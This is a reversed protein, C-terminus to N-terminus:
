TSRSTDDKMKDKDDPVIETDYYCTLFIKAAEGVLTKDPISAATGYVKGVGSPPQPNLRVFEMTEKVDKVLEEAFNDTAQLSTLCVHLGPPYQLFTLHWGRATMLDGVALINVESSRFAVISTLPDGFLQIGPVRQLRQKLDRATRIIRRAADTYGTVGHYLLAAWCVAMLGGPRSGAITPSGYIGGPWDPTVFYQYHRYEPRRYMIVSSGKHAQGYKHTDASISVVGPVRFDFPPLPYGAADMFPLLFGGMCCDVHVPVGRALGLAGIAEVDDIIGHPFEPASAVLMVTNRNIARRMANVDAKFSVPDVPVKRIKVGLLSAAKDFGSHATVAMVVEAQKVGKVERGWNRMAKMAMLISESGGSTMCGCAEDDGHFISLTMRVIEAEMKRVGPFMDAHLPNTLATMGYVKLLVDSLDENGGSFAGGSIKGDQWAYNGKGLTNSAVDLVQEESWGDKPLEKLPPLAAVSAGADEFIGKQIEIRSQDLQKQIYRKVAPISRLVRFVWAQIDDKVDARNAYLNGLAM